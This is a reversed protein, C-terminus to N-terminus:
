SILSNSSHSHSMGSRQSSTGTAPSLQVLRTPSQVRFEVGRCEVPPRDQPYIVSLRSVLSPFSNFATSRGELAALIAPLAHQSIAPSNVRAGAWGGNPMRYWGSGALAPPVDHQTTEPETSLPEARGPLKRRSVVRGSMTEILQTHRERHKRDNKARFYFCLTVLLRCVCRRHHCQSRICLFGM